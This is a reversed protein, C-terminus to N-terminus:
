HINPWDPISFNAFDEVYYPSNVLCNVLKKDLTLLPANVKQSLAVYSADYASIQYNSAILFASEMLETTSIIQLPLRKLNALDRTVENISYLGAKVYKWLVNTSEIYFLDPVFIKTESSSLHDLLQNVKPTLPDLIFQKTSVSTDLVCSFFNSM